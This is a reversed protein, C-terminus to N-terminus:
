HMTECNLPIILQAIDQLFCSSFDPWEFCTKWRGPSHTASWKCPHSRHGQKESSGWSKWALVLDCFGAKEQPFGWPRASKRFADDLNPLAAALRCARRRVMAWLGHSGLLCALGGGGGGSGIEPADQPCTHKELHPNLKCLAPLPPDTSLSERRLIPRFGRPSGPHLLCREAPFM